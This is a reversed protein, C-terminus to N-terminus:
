FRIKTGTRPDWEVSNAPYLDNSTNLAGTGVPNGSDAMPQLINGLSDTVIVNALEERRDYAQLMAQAEPRLNNRTDVGLWYLGLDNQFEPGDVWAAIQAANYGRGALIRRIIGWARNNATTIADLYWPPYQGNVSPRVISDAINQLQQDSLYGAM